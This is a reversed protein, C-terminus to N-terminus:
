KRDNKDKIVKAIADITYQSLAEKLPLGRYKSKHNNWDAYFELLFEVEFALKEDEKSIKKM